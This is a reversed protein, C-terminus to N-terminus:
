CLYIGFFNAWKRMEFAKLDCFNNMKPSKIPIKNGTKGTQKQRRCDAFARQAKGGAIAPAPAM